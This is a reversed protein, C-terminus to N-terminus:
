RSYPVAPECVGRVPAYSGVKRASSTRLDIRWLTGHIANAAVVTGDAAFALGTFGMDKDQDVDREIDLRTVEFRVPDIRWLVPLVNSTVFVVGASDLALDPPCGFREGFYTWGPLVVRRLLKGSGSDHLSVADRNLLWLRNRAPDERIRLVQLKGEQPSARPGLPDSDCAALMAAAFVVVIRQSKSFWSSVVKLYSLM